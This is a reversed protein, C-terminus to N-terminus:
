VSAFLESSDRHMSARFSLDSVKDLDSKSTEGEKKGKDEDVTYTGTKSLESSSSSSSSSSFNSFNMKFFQRFM